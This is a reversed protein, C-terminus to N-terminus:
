SEVGPTEPEDDFPCYFPLDLDFSPLDPLALSPLGISPLSFSFPLGFTCKTKAQKAEIVTKYFRGM